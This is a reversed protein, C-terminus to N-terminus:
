NIENFGPLVRTLVNKLHTALMQGATGNKDELLRIAMLVHYQEEATMGHGHIFDIVRNYRDWREPGGTGTAERNPGLNQQEDRLDRVMEVLKINM